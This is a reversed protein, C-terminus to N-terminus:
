EEDHIARSIAKCLSFSDTHSKLVFYDKFQIEKKTELDFNMAHNAHTSPMGSYGSGDRIVYSIYRGSQYLHMPQIWYHRYHMDDCDGPDAKEDRYDKKSGKVLKDIRQYFIGNFKNKKPISISLYACFDKRSYEATELQIDMQLFYATDVTFYDDSQESVLSDKAVPVSATKKDKKENKCAAAMLLLMAAFIMRM